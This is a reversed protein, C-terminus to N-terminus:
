SSPSGIVSRGLLTKAENMSSAFDIMGGSLVSAPLRDLAPRTTAEPGDCVPDKQM